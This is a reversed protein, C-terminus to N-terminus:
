FNAAVGCSEVQRRYMSIERLVKTDALARERLQLFRCVCLLYQPDCYAQLACFVALVYALQYALLYALLHDLLYALRRALSDLPKKM